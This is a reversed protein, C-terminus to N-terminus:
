NVTIVPAEDTLEEFDGKDAVSTLLTGRPKLLDNDDKDAISDPGYGTFRANQNISM